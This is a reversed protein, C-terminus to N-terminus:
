TTELPRLEGLLLARESDPLENFFQRRESESTKEWASRLKQLPTAKRSPAKDRFGAQVMAANATLEGALCQAHLDPRHRALRRLAYTRSNGQQDDLRIIVNKNNTDNDTLHVHPPPVHTNAENAEQNRHADKARQAAKYLSNIMEPKYNCVFEYTQELEMWATFSKGTKAEWYAQFTPFAQHNELGEANAYLGETQVLKLLSYFVPWTEELRSAVNSIWRDAFAARASPAKFEAFDELVHSIEPALIGHVSKSGQWRGQAITDPKRKAPMNQAM